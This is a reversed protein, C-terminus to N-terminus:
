VDGMGLAAAVRQGVTHLATTVEVLDGETMDPDECMRLAIRVITDVEQVLDGHVSADLLDRSAQTNTALRHCDARWRQPDTPPEEPPPTRPTQRLEDYLGQLVEPSLRAFDKAKFRRVQKGRWQMCEQATWGLDVQFAEIRARLARTAEPTGEPSGPPAGPGGQEQPSENPPSPAEPEAVPRTPAAVATEQPPPDGVLDAVHDATTKTPEREGLSLTPTQAPELTVTEVADLHRLLEHVRGALPIYKADCIRRLMTKRAM